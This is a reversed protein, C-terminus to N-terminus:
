KPSLRERYSQLEEFALEFMVTPTLAEEISDVGYKEKVYETLARRNISDKAINVFQTYSDFPTLWQTPTVTSPITEQNLLNFVKEALQDTSM